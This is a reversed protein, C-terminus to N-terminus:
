RVCSGYQAMEKEAKLRAGRSKEDNSQLMNCGLTQMRGRRRAHRLVRVSGAVTSGTAHGTAMDLASLADDLTTEDCSPSKIQEPIACEASDVRANINDSITSEAAEVGAASGSHEIHGSVTTRSATRESSREQASLARFMDDEARAQQLRETWRPM